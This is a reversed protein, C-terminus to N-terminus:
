EPNLIEEEPQIVDQTQLAEEAGPEVSETVDSPAVTTEETLAM